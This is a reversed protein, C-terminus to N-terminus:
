TGNPHDNSKFNTYVFERARKRGNACSGNGCMIDIEKLFSKEWSKFEATELLSDYVENEYNSIIIHFREKPLANSLKMINNHLKDDSGCNAKSSNHKYTNGSTKIDSNKASLYPPDIYITCEEKIERKIKKLASCVDMNWVEVGEFADMYECIKEDVLNYWRILKEDSFVPKGRTCSGVRSFYHVFWSYAAATPLEDDTYDYLCYSSHENLYAKAKEFTEENCELSQMIEALPYSYRDCSLAKCIVTLETSLDNIIRRRAVRNITVTAAGGCLDIFIDSKHTDFYEILEELLRKKSGNFPFFGSLFKFQAM